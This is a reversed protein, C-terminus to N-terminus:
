AAVRKNIDALMEKTLPQGHLDTFRSIAWNQEAMGKFGTLPSIKEVLKNIIEKLLLGPEGVTNPVVERVTYIKNIVPKVIGNERFYNEWEQTFTDNICIVEM